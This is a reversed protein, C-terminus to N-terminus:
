KRGIPTSRQWSNYQDCYNERTMILNKEAARGNDGCKADCSREAQYARCESDRLFDRYDDGDAAHKPLAGRPLSKCSDKGYREKWDRMHSEEHIQTCSRSPTVDINVVEYGGKGDCQITSVRRDALGNPDM